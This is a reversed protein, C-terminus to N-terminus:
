DPWYYQQFCDEATLPIFLLSILPTMIISELTCLAEEFTHVKWTPMGMIHGWPSIAPSVAPEMTIPDMWGPLPNDEDVYTGGCRNRYREHRNVASWRRANQFTSREAQRAFCPCALASLQGAALVQCHQVLGPVESYM